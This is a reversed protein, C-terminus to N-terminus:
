ILQKFVLHKCITLKFSMKAHNLFHMKLIMLLNLDIKDLFTIVIYSNSRFGTFGLFFYTFSAM